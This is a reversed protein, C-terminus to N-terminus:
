TRYVCKHFHPTQQLVHSLILHTSINNNSPNTKKKKELLLRCVLHANTVPTRRTSKRDLVGAGDRPNRHALRAPGERYRRTPPCARAALSFIPLACESSWDSIRMEYATKQKFFFVLVFFFSFHCMDCVM